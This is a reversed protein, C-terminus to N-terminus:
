IESKGPESREVVRIDYWRVRGRESGKVGGGGGVHGLTPFRPYRYQNTALAKM